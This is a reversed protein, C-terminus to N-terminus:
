YKKLCSHKIAAATNKGWPVPLGIHLREIDESCRWCVISKVKGVAIDSFCKDVIQFVEVVFTWYDNGRVALSTQM